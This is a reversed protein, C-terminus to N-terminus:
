LVTIDSIGCSSTNYLYGVFFLKNTNTTLEVSTSVAVNFIKQTIIGNNEKFGVQVVIIYPGLLVLTLESINIM